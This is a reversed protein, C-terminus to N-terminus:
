EVAVQEDPDYDLKGSGPIFTPDVLKVAFPNYESGVPKVVAEVREAELCSLITNGATCRAKLANDSIQGKAHANLAMTVMRRVDRPKTIAIRKM